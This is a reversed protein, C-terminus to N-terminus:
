QEGRNLVKIDEEDAKEIIKARKKGGVTSGIRAAEEEPDLEDLEDTNHVLVEEYGSPHKGRDEEPTRYGPKPMAAGHKKKLRSRSHQGKPKRWSDPVSKKKHSDQRKFKKSM